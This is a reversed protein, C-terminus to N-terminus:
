YDKNPMKKSTLIKVNLAFHLTHGLYMHRHNLDIVLMTSSRSRMERELMFRSTILFMFFVTSRGTM